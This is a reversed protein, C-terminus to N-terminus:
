FIYYLVPWFFESKEIQPEAQLIKILFSAEHMILAIGQANKCFLDAEFYFKGSQRLYNM